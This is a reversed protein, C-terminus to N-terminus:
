LLLSHQIDPVHVRFCFVALRLKNNECLYIYVRYDKVARWGGGYEDEWTLWFGTNFWLMIANSLSSTQYDRLRPNNPHGPQPPSVVPEAVPIWM